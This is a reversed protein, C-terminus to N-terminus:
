RLRWTNRDTCIAQWGVATSSRSLARKFKKQIEIEMGFYYCISFWSQSSGQTSTMQPEDPDLPFHRFYMNYVKPGVWKFDIKGELTCYLRSGSKTPDPNNTPPPYDRNRYPLRSWMSYRCLETARGGQIEVIPYDVIYSIWGRRLATSEHAPLLGTTSPHPLQLEKGSSQNYPLACGVFGPDRSYHVGSYQEGSYQVASCQM